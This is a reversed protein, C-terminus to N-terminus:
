PLAMTVAAATMASSCVTCYCRRMQSTDNASGVSVALWADLGACDIGAATQAAQGCPRGRAGRSLCVRPRCGGCLDQERGGADSGTM